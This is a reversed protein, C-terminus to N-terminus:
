FNSILLHNSCMGLWKWRLLIQYVIQIMIQLAMKVHAVQRRLHLTTPLSRHVTARELHVLLVRPFIAQLHRKTALHRSPSWAMKRPRIYSHSIDPLYFSWRGQVPGQSRLVQSISQAKCVLAVNGWKSREINAVLETQSTGRSTTTVISRFRFPSPYGTQFAALSIGSCEVPKKHSQSFSQLPQLSTTHAAAPGAFSCHSM